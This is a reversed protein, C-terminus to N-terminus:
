GEIRVGVADIGMGANVIRCKTFKGNDDKLFEFDWHGEEDDDLFFKTPENEVPSMRDPSGSTDAWIYIGDGEVYIRATIVPAGYATLDFQYQGCYPGYKADATKDQATSAFSFATVLIVTSLLILVRKASM